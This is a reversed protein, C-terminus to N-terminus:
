NKIKVAEKTYVNSANWLMFGNYNDKLADKTATIEKGVMESTYFAGLSFDQLWPRIKAMKVSENIGANLNEQLKEINFLINRKIASDMSYKVIEYPHDAPNEFGIFGNAYHSPYIMPCVYDFYEYSDEIKQGIGMDGSDTTTQGFVDISIVIGPLAQRLKKFFDKIIEQKTTKGGSFPFGMNKTNGDSPFRLYDFNIEDFGKEWADKAISAVYDLVKQSGPDVWYLGGNDQWLVLKGLEATKEKNFIALEPSTTALVSDQFVPIRAILYLQKEHLKKILGDIDFITKRYTKYERAIESNTDYSVYGSFDKIDIVVANIETNELLKPLYNDVYKASNASWSTMYVARIIKSPNALQKPAIKETQKLPEATNKEEAILSSVSARNTNLIDPQGYNAIFFYVLAGALATLIVIFFIIIKINNAM